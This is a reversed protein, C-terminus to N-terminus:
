LNQLFRMRDKDSLKKKNEGKPREIVGQFGNALKTRCADCFRGTRIKGGCQECEIGDPSGETFILREQRVWEKLQKVSVGCEKSIVEINSHPNENIYTKVEQFKEELRNVCAPCLRANTVVNYLRGCGRCNSVEM